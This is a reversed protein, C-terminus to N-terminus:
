HTCWRLKQTLKAGPHRAADYITQVGTSSCSMIFSTGHKRLNTVTRPNAIWVHIIGVSKNSAVPPAPGRIIGVSECTPWVVIMVSLAAMALVAGM